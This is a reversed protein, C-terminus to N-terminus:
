NEEEQYGVMHHKTFFGEEIYIAGFEDHLEREILNDEKKFEDFGFPYDRCNFFLNGKFGSDNSINLSFERIKNKNFFETLFNILSNPNTINTINGSFYNAM